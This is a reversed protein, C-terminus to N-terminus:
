QRNGSQKFANNVKKISEFVNVSAIIPTLVDCSFVDIFMNHPSFTLYDSLENM